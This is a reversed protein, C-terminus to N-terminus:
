WGGHVEEAAQSGEVFAEEGKAFIGAVDGLGALEHKIGERAFGGEGDGGFGQAGMVQHEVGRVVREFIGLAELDKCGACLDVRVGVFGGVAPERIVQFGGVGAPGFEVDLADLAEVFDDIAVEHSEGVRETLVFAGEALECILVLGGEGVGAFALEVGDGFGGEGDADVGPAQVDAGAEADQAQFEWGGDAGGFFCSRSDGGQHLEISAADGLLASKNSM